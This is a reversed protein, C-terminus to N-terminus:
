FGLVFLLRPALRWQLKFIFIVIIGLLWFVFQIGLLRQQFVLFM